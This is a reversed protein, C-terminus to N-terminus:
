ILERYLTAIKKSTVRLDFEAIAKTQFTFDSPLQFLAKELPIAEDLLLGNKEHVLPYHDFARTSIVPLHCALSELHTRTAGPHLLPSILYDVSNFVLPALENPINGLYKFSANQSCKEEVAAQYPGKGAILFLAHPPLNQISLISEIGKEFSLRNLYLYVTEYPFLDINFKKKFLSRAKTKSQPKFRSFDIGNPIFVAKEALHRMQLDQLVYRDVCVVQNSDQINKEEVKRWSRALSRAFIGKKQAQVISPLGHFTMVKPIRSQVWAQKTYLPSLLGGAAVTGSFGVPGHVHLLDPPSKELFQLKNKERSFEDLINGQIKQILGGTKKQPPIRVIRAYPTKEHVPLGFEEDCLITFNFQSSLSECLTQIHTEVGGLSHRNFYRFYHAISHNTPM